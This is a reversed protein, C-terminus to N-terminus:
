SFLPTENQWFPPGQHCGLRMRCQSQEAPNCVRGFPAAISHATAHPQLITAPADSKCHHAHRHTQEASKREAHRRKRGPAIAATGSSPNRPL